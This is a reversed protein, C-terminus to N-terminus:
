SEAVQYRALSACHVPPCVHLGSFLSSLVLFSVASPLLFPLLCNVNTAKSGRQRREKWEAKQFDLPTIPCYVSGHRNRKDSEGRESNLRRERETWNETLEESPWKKKGRGKEGEM